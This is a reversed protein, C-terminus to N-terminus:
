VNEDEDGLLFSFMFKSGIGVKSEFGIEGGFAQVIKKSIMLGLGIGSSNM